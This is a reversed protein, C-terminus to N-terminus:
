VTIADVELRDIRRDRGSGLVHRVKIVECALGSMADLAHTIDVIDGQEIEMNDLFVEFHPIKRPNKHWTLLFNGVDTVMAAVTVADFRFVGASGTWERRGYASISTADSFATAGAYQDDNDGEISLDKDYRVVFANILDDAHTRRMKVTNQRIESSAIAHTSSKGTNRLTLSAAGIASVFFRSRCQHALKAFLDAARIPQNILLAFAYSNTGFYTAAAAEVTLDTLTQGMFDAHGWLLKIVHDPRAILASATGTYTGSGDDQYGELDCTVLRGVVTDASSNGTLTAEVDTAPSSKSSYKFEIWAGNVRADSGSSCSVTASLGRLTAWSQSTTYWSSRKVTPSANTASVSQGNYTLTVAGSFTDWVRLCVRFHTATGPFTRPIEMSLSVSEGSSFSAGTAQDGDLICEPYLPHSAGTTNSDFELAVVGDETLTHAHSGEDMTASINVQKKIVPLASFAIVATAGYGALQDGSQGTYATYGSTQKVGDVRVDGISKVAHAAVEWVYSTLVQAVAAGANHAVATTSNYGRTCSTFQGTSTNYTGQIQEDDIQVTVSGSPFNAKTSLSVYFSTASSTLDDRLTDLVGAAVARCKVNTLDGICINRMKGIDDPDAGTFDAASLILSAGITKNASDWASSVTLRCVTLDYEPQGMVRGKFLLEPHTYADGGFWQYLEVDVSEPAETFNDSFASSESNIIGLSLESAEIRGLLSDGRGYDAGHEVFGWERVLGAWERSVTLDSIEGSWDNGSSAASYSCATLLYRFSPDSGRAFSLTDYLVTMAEDTYVYVYVTGYTGVGPDIVIKVYYDTDLAIACSDSRTSTKENIYLYTSGSVLFLAYNSFGGVHSLNDSLAWLCCYDYPDTGVTKKFHLRHELDGSIGGAGFDLSFYAVDDFDMGTVTITEGSRSLWGPTDTETMDGIVLDPAMVDRDSLCVPTAFGFKLLNVPTCGKKARESNFAANFSRM